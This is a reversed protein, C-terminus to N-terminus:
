REFYLQACIAANSKKEYKIREERFNNEPKITFHPPSIKTINQTKKIMTKKKENFSQDANMFYQQHKIM